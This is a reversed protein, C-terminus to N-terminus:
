RRSLSALIALRLSEAVAKAAREDADQEAARNALVQSNTTYTATARRTIATAMRGDRPAITITATVTVERAENPDDSDSLAVDRNVASVSASVLPAMPSASEGIRLALEQYVIQELRTSPKAYALETTTRSTSAGGYVPSFSCAGLTGSAVLLVVISSAARVQRSLSM